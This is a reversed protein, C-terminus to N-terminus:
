SFFGISLLGRLLWERQHTYSALWKILVDNDDRQLMFCPMTPNSWDFLLRVTSSNPALAERRLVYCPMDRIPTSSQDVMIGTDDLMHELVRTLQHLTDSQNLNGARLIASMIETWPNQRLYARHQEQAYQAEYATIQVHTIMSRLHLLDILAMGLSYLNLVANGEVILFTSEQGDLSVCIESGDYVTMTVHTRQSFLSLVIAIHNEIVEPQTIQLWHHGFIDEFQALIPNEPEIFVDHSVHTWAPPCYRNRQQQTLVWLVLSEHTNFM